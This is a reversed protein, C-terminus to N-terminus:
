QRILWKIFFVVGIILAIGGIIYFVNGSIILAVIGIAGFIAALKLDQDVSGSTAKVVKSNKAPNLKASNRIQKKVLSKIQNREQKTMEAFSQKLNKMEPTAAEIALVPHSDLSATLAEPAIPLASSGVNATNGAFNQNRDYKNFHAAYKNSACSAFLVVSLFCLLKKMPNKNKNLSLLYVPLSAGKLSGFFNLSDSCQAM